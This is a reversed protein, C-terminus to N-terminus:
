IMDYGFGHLGGVMYMINELGAAKALNAEAGPHGYAGRACASIYFPASFKNGLLTTSKCHLDEM